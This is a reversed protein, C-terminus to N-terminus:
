IGSEKKKPLYIKLLNNVCNLKASEYEGGYEGDLTWAIKENSDVKVSSTQFYCINPSSDYKKSQLCTLIETLEAPSKPYRIFLCELLGDKMDVSDSFLPFGGVSKSNSVMGFIFDDEIKQNESEIILHHSQVNNLTKLGNLIYALHGLNRKLEQDTEYSVATFIGFAAIYSFYRGNFNGVDIYEPNGACIIAAADHIVKPIGASSAFDNTSGSPIYGLPLTNNLSLLENTITHLTGDGGCCVVLDFEHGYNKLVMESTHDKELPVATVLFDSLSFLRILEPVFSPIQSKGSNPNYFLLLKQMM